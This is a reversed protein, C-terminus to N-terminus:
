QHSSREEDEVPITERNVVPSELVSDGGDTTSGLFTADTRTPKSPTAIVRQQTIINSLVPTPKLIYDSLNKVKTKEEVNNSPPGSFTFTKGPVDHCSLFTNDCSSLVEEESEITSLNKEDPSVSQNKEDVFNKTSSNVLEGKPTIDELGPPATFKKVIAPLMNTTSNKKNLDIKLSSDSSSSDPSITDVCCTRELLKVVPTKNTSNTHNSITSSSNNTNSGARTSNPLINYTNNAKTRGIGMTMGVKIGNKLGEEYFPLLLKRGRDLRMMHLIEGLMIHSHKSKPSCQNKLMMVLKTALAYEGNKLINYGNQQTPNDINQTPISKKNSVYNRCDNRLYNIKAEFKKWQENTYIDPAKMDIFGGTKPISGRRFLVVVQEALSSKIGGIGGSTFLVGGDNTM